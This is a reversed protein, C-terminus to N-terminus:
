RRSTRYFGCEVIATTTTAPVTRTVAAAAPGLDAPDQILQRGSGDVRVAAPLSRLGINGTHVREVHEDMTELDDFKSNCLVVVAMHGTDNDRVPAIKYDTQGQNVEEINARIKALSRRWIEGIVMTPYRNEEPRWKEFTGNPLKTSLADEVPVPRPLPNGPDKTVIKGIFGHEILVESVIAQDVATFSEADYSAFM